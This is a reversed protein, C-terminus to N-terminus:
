EGGGHSMLPREAEENFLRVRSMLITVSSKM